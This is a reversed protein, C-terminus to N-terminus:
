SKRQPRASGDAPAAVPGPDIWGIHGDARRYVVNLGGHARNRFMLVPQDALDMRLVAEGVTLPAIETTMEAVVVPAGAVPDEGAAPEAEASLVFQQAPSPPEAPAQTKHLDVLRGKYRQLRTSLRTSATEFAAYADDAEGHSQVVIGRGIHVSVDARFAHRVKSLVVTGDIAAGFHRAVIGALTSEVHGRLSEGVDIHKGSVSLQM